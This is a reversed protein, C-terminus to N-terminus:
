KLQIHICVNSFRDVRELWWHKDFEDLRKLAEDPSLQTEILVLLTPESDEPYEMIDLVLEGEPFYKRIEDYAEFLFSKVEPNKSLFDLIEFPKNLRYKNWLESESSKPLVQEM